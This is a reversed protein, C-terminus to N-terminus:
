KNHIIISYHIIQSYQVRLVLVSSGSNKELNETRRPPPAANQPCNAVEMCPCPFTDISTLVTMLFWCKGMEQLKPMFYLKKSSYKFRFRTLISTLTHIKKNKKKQFRM